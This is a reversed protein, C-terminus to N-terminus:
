KVIKIILRIFGPHPSEFALLSTQYNFSKLWKLILKMSIPSLTDRVDKYKKKDTASTTPLLSLFTLIIDRIFKPYREFSKTGTHLEVSHYRDPFEIFLVGGSRLVRIHEKLYNKPNKTHEIIHCSQICSFTNDKFPLSEGDYIVTKIKKERLLIESPEKYIEKVETGIVNKFGHKSAQLLELGVASGSILLNEKDRKELYPILFRIRSFYADEDYLFSIQKEIYENNFGRKKLNKILIKQSKKIQQLPILNSM